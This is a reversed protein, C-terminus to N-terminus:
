RLHEHCESVLLSRGKKIVHPKLASLGQPGCCTLTHPLFIHVRQCGCLFLLLREYADLTIISVDYILSRMQNECVEVEVKRFPFYLRM